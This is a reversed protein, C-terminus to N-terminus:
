KTAKYEAKATAKADAASQISSKYTANANSKASNYETKAEKNAAKKEAKPKSSNAAVAQDYTAKAAALDAAKQDKADAVAKKYDAKAQEWKEKPSLESDEAPEDGIGAVTTAVAEFSDSTSQGVAKLAVVSVLSVLLVLLAYSVLAEGRENNKYSDWRM